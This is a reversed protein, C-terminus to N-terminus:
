IADVIYRTRIFDKDEILITIEDVEELAQWNEDLQVYVCEDLERRCIWEIDEPSCVWHMWIVNDEFEFWPEEIPLRYRECAEKIDRYSLTLSTM